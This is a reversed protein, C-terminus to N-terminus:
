RGQFDTTVVVCRGRGMFPGLRIGVGILQFGRRLMVARHPPSALWNTVVRQISTGDDTSWGLNEGVLPGRAGFRGLRGAFNGHAFYQRAVMDRSHQRAARVLRDDVRLPPLRHQSRRENVAQLFQRELDSLRLAGGYAPASLVLAAAIAAAAGTICSRRSSV